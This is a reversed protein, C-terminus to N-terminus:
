PRTKEDGTEELTKIEAKLWEACQLYARRHAAEREHRMELNNELAFGSMRFSEEASAEVLGLVKRMSKAEAM